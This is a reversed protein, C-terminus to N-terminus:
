TATESRENGVLPSIEGVWGSYRPRWMSTALLRPLPPVPLDILSGIMCVVGNYYQPKYKYLYSAVGGEPGRETSQGVGRCRHASQEHDWYLWMGEKM